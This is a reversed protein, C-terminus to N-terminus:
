ACACAPIGLRPIAPAQRATLQPGLEWLTIRGVLDAVRAELPQTKDCFAWGASEPQSCAIGPLPPGPSPPLPGDCSVNYVSLRENAGCPGPGGGPCVASCDGSPAPKAGAVIADGCYCAWNAPSPSKHGTVGTLPYGSATCAAVCTDVSLDGGDTSFVMNPLAHPGTADNFCGLPPLVPKCVPVRSALTLALSAAATAARLSRM